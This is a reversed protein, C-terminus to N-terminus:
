GYMEQYDIQWQTVEVGEPHNRNYVMAVVQSFGEPDVPIGSPGSKDGRRYTVPEWKGSSIGSTAKVAKRLGNSATSLNFM